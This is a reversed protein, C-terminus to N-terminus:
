AAESGRKKLPRLDLCGPSGPLTEALKKLEARQIKLTATTPIADVFAVWGPAKYYALRELCWATISEATEKSAAFGGNLVVLAIVEEGRTQDRVSTIALQRAAPHRQLVGEVELASINEGSRRIVNKRRDVFHLSGDEGFRAVDGTHWFDGRWAEETAAADKLYGSFFGSRPNAGKRRVLLEGPEGHPVPNEQEDVLKVDMYAPPRGFCRTGIHRPEETCMITGGAGTETMAWGEVLPFGFRKEFALHHEPEANSGFGCIVKHTKDYPGDPLQMLIAPMVGLYHVITAGSEAVDQWWSKPHFRDLQIICGATALMAMSSCCMANMHFMPLPTLIRTKGPEFKIYGGVTSYWDAMMLCYENSIICGKPRGTTGSTYLLAAEQSLVPQDVAAVAPVAPVGALVKDADLVPLPRGTSAAADTLEGLRNALAVCLVADSHDLLYAMEERRYDPNIPVVSVGLANLALWNFFFAPRNDLLIAVRHGRGLGAKAYVSRLKEIEVAAAEYTFVIRGDAYGKTASAPLWLFDNQPHARASRSFAGFVSGASVADLM